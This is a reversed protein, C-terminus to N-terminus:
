PTWAGGFFQQLKEITSLSTISNMIIVQLWKSYADVLVIYMSGMFHGAFDLHLRSWRQRPWDWPHLPALPPLPQSLQCNGCAKVYDEIESDM